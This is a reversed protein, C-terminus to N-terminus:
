FTVSPLVRYMVILTVLLAVDYPWLDARSRAPEPFGPIDVGGSQRTLSQLRRSDRGLPDLLLFGIAIALLLISPSALLLDGRFRTACAMVLVPTLPRDFLGGPVSRTSLVSWAAGYMKLLLWLLCALAGLLVGFALVSILPKAPSSFRISFCCAVLLIASARAIDFLDFKMTRLMLDGM